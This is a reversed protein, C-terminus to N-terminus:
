KPMKAKLKGSFNKVSDEYPEGYHFGIVETSVYKGNKYTDEMIFTIDSTRSYVTYREKKLKKRATLPKM